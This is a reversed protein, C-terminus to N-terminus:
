KAIELGLLTAVLGISGQAMELDFEGEGMVKTKASSQGQKVLDSMQRREGVPFSAFTRRLLPLLEIFSDADLECLWEDLVTWLGADHLLLLGSGHLFGELWAGAQVPDNAHSLAFHLYRSATDNDLVNDNLLLRCCRGVILGHVGHQNLLKELTQQWMDSHSENQLLNIANACEILVKFVEHAADDDLASCATPLGVCLRVVVSDVVRGVLATDFRRVTGYRLVQALQPLARMLEIADGAVAALTDLRQLAANVAVPLDALLVKDLWVTLDPLRESHHIKDQAFQQSAEEITVGWLSAEILKLVYEPQWQLRWMEKFTGKGSAQKLEGWPIDLLVLRHLLQSRALDVDKRLDLVKDEEDASPKLRLSKQQATLDQQIPVSPTDDPVTGLRNSVVLQEYILQMPEADGFCLTTLAAENLEDLDPLPKNRLAALTEAVRVSEIVSATSADIGADRLTHAIKSLWGGAVARARQSEAVDCHWLHEYWGPSQIGAGYGSHMTLHHYSWPVWTANVKCKPLGKLVANDAKITVNAQLAPVHWAGCVVAINNFDKQAARLTKRMWAERLVERQQQPNDANLTQQAEIEERVASMAENIATFLELSDRRQEVMYDWWREGDDFGAAQALWDLPDTPLANQAATSSDELCDEDETEESTQEAEQAAQEAQQQAEEAWQKRLALQHKQPLDMMQIPIDHALAYQIVQWEPSFTAFPYFVVLDLEKEDHLLLAVPPQMDVHQVYSLLPEAEAPGELLIVDPKVAELATRLSRASGPGHHRIGFYHPANSM